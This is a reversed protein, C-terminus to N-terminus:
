GGKAPIQPGSQQECPIIKTLYVTNRKEDWEAASNLAGALTNMPVMFAGNNMIGMSRTITTSADGTTVIFNGTRADVRVKAGAAAATAKVPMYVTSNRLFASPKLNKLLGDISVKVAADKALAAAALALVLCLAMAIISGYRRM